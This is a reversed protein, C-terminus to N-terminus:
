GDVFEELFIKEQEDIDVYSTHRPYADKPIEMYNGFMNKLVKDTDNPVSLNFNEFEMKQLPFINEWDYVWNTLPHPYDLGAFVSPKVAIDINNNKLIDKNTIHRFYETIEEVSSHSKFFNKKIKKRLTKSIEFKENDDTAKYYYDYPFIDIFLNKSAKYGLKIFCKNYNNNEFELYIDSNTIKNDKFLQILKNYSDRPMAIDLDDDWPIFGKHRIAGLLTGWDLWYQLQHETCIEDFIKLFKANAKQILRLNGEAPPIDSANSFSHYFLAAKAREKRISPKLLRLKIGFINYSTHSPTSKDQKIFINLIKNM